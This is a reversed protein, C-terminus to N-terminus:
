IKKTQLDMRKLDFMCLFLVWKGIGYLAVFNGAITSILVAPDLAMVAPICCIGDDCLMNTVDTADLESVCSMNYNQHATLIWNAFIGATTAIELSIFIYACIIIPTQGLIFHRTKDLKIGFFNNLLMSDGTYNSWNDLYTRNGKCTNFIICFLLGLGYTLWAIMYSQVEPYFNFYHVTAYYFAASNVVIGIITFGLSIYFKGVGVWMSPHGEATPWPLFIRFYAHLSWPFSL